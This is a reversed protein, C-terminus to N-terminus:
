EKIFYLEQSPQDTLFDALKNLAGSERMKDAYVDHSEKSEWKESLLVVNPDDSSHLVDVGSCGDAALIREKSGKMIEVFANVQDEKVKFRVLLQISM